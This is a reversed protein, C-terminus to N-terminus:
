AVRISPKALFLKARSCCPAFRAPANRWRQEL